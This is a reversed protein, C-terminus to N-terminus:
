FFQLLQFYEYKSKGCVRGIRARELMMELPVGIIEEIDILM